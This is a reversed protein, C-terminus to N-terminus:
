NSGPLRVEFLAAGQPTTFAARVRGTRADRWLAFPDTGSNSLTYLTTKLDTEGASEWKGSRRVFWRIRGDLSPNTAVGVLSTGRGDADPLVAYEGRSNTLRWIIPEGIRHVYLGDTEGRDQGGDPLWFADVARGSVAIRPTITSTFEARTFLMRKDLWRGQRPDYQLHFVRSQNGKSVLVEAAILQLVGDESVGAALNNEAHESFREVLGVLTPQTGGVSYIVLNQAQERGDGAPMTAAGAIKNDYSYGIAFLRIGSRLLLPSRLGPPLPLAEKEGGGKLLDHLTMAHMRETAYGELASGSIVVYPQSDGLTSRVEAGTSRISWLGKMRELRGNRIVGLPGRSDFTDRDFEGPLIVLPDFGSRAFVSADGPVPIDQRNILAVPPGEGPVRTDVTQSAVPQALSAILALSLVQVRRATNMLKGISVFVLEIGDGVSVRAGSKEEHPRAAHGTAAYRGQREGAGVAVRHHCLGSRPLAAAPTLHLSRTPRSKRSSCVVATRSSFRIAARAHPRLGCRSRKKLAQSLRRTHPVMRWAVRFYAPVM